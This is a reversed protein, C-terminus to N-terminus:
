PYVLLFFTPFVLFAGNTDLILGQTSKPRWFEFLFLSFAEFGGFHLFVLFVVDSFLDSIKLIKKWVKTKSTKRWKPDKKAELSNKKFEPPWFRGLTKNQVWISRNEVNKLIKLKKSSKEFDKALWDKASLKYGSTISQYDSGDIDLRVPILSEHFVFM